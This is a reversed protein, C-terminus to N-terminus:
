RGSPINQPFIKLFKDRDHKTHEHWFGIVHGIQHLASGYSFCEPGLNVGQGAASDVKGVFSSCSQFRYFITIINLTFYLKTTYM